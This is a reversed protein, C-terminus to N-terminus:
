NVSRSFEYTFLDCCPETLVLNDKNLEIKKASINLFFDAATPTSTIKFSDAQATSPVLTYDGTFIVSKDKLLDFTTENIRMADFKAPYGQGALGGTVALLNWTGKFGTADDTVASKECSAWALCAIALIFITNKM